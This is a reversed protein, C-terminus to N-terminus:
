VSETLMDILRRRRPAPTRPARGVRLLVLPYVSLRLDNRLMERTYPVEVVQTLLSAVFGHRSMELLVRELAEGARLWNSPTDEAACLLLLCQDSRSHTETPLQGAGLTDFDRIPVEDPPRPGSRPLFSIPTTYHPVATSPVGDDRAPDDTTWARLEARYAQDANQQVDAKQSWTAAALRDEPRTIVILASHESIAAEVTAAILDDPVPDEAFRRRNSRRLELVADLAGIEATETDEDVAANMKGVTVRALVDPRLADPTREVIPFYGNATLSVRANFLACGCSILLQRGTPDLAHLQRSRDAHVELMDNGLVFRWPQTNHVSPALTARVAARRLAQTVSPQPRATPDAGELVPTRPSTM